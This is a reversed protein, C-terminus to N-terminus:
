RGQSMYDKLDMWEAEHPINKVFIRTRVEPITGSEEQLLRASSIFSRIIGPAALLQHRQMYRGARIISYM